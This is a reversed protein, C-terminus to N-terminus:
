PTRPCGRRVFLLHRRSRWNTSRPVSRCATSCRMSRSAPPSQEHLPISSKTRVCCNRIVDALTAASGRTAEARFYRFRRTTSLRFICIRVDADARQALTSVRRAAMRAAMGTGKRASIFRVVDESLGPPLTDSEIDTVFGAKYDRRVLADLTNSSESMFSLNQLCRFVSPM